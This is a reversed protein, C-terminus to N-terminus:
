IQKEKHGIKEKPYFLIFLSSRVERGVEGIDAQLSLRRKCSTSQLAKASCSGYLSGMSLSDDPDMYM